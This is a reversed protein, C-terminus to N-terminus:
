FNLDKGASFSTSTALHSCLVVLTEDPTLDVRDGCFMVTALAMKDVDDGCGNVTSLHRILWIVMM